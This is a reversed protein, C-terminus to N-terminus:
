MPFFDNSVYVIRISALMSLNTMALGLFSPTAIWRSELQIAVDGGVVPEPRSSTSVAASRAM